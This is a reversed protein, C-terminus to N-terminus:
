ENIYNREQKITNEIREGEIKNQYVKRYRRLSKRWGKIINVCTEDVEMPSGDYERDIAAYEQYTIKEKLLDEYAVWFDFDFISAKNEACYILKEKDNVGEFEYGTESTFYGLAFQYREEFSKENAM